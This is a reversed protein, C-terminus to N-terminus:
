KKKGKVLGKKAKKKRKHKGNLFNACKFCYRAIAVFSITLLLIGIVAIISNKIIRTQSLMEKLATGTTEGLKKELIEISHDENLKIKMEAEIAEGADTTGNLTVYYQGPKFQDSNCNVKYTKKSNPLVNYEDQNIPLTQIVNGQEDIIEIKGTPSNHVNGENFLVVDFEALGLDNQQIVNFDEIRITEYLGGEVKLLVLHAVRVNVAAGSGTLEKNQKTEIFLSGYYGQSPADIPITIEYPVVGKAKPGLTVESNPITIWDQLSYLNDEKVDEYFELDEDSNVVFDGKNVVITQTSDSDNFVNVQGNVTEGPQSTFEIRLPAAGIAYATASSLIFLGIIYIALKKM